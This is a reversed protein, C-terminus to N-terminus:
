KNTDPDQFPEGGYYKQFELATKQQDLLLKQPNLVFDQRKNPDRLGTAASSLFNDPSSLDFSGLIGPIGTAKLRQQVSGAVQQNLQPNYKPDSPDTPVAAAVNGINALEMDAASQRDKASQSLDKQIAAAKEAATMAGGVLDPTAIGYRGFPTLDIQGGGAAQPNLIQSYAKLIDPDQFAQGMLTQKQIALGQLQQQQAMSGLTMAQGAMGLLNLPQQQASAPNSLFSYDAM